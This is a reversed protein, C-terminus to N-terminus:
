STWPLRGIVVKKTDENQAERGTSFTVSGEPLESRLQKIRAPWAWAFQPMGTSKLGFDSTPAPPNIVGKECASIATSYSIVNPTSLIKCANLLGLALAWHKGKECATILANCTILNPLMGQQKMAQFLELAWKPQMGKECASMLANYIVVDPVLGHWQMEEFLELAHDARKDRACAIILASYTIVNPVVGQQQM